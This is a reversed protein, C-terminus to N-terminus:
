PTPRFPNLQISQATISGDANATGFAAVTTGATLDAASAPAAKNITTTKSLLVIKTSGDTLKVTMSTADASVIDGTVPRNQNNGFRATGRTGTGNVNAAFQRNASSSLQSQQYKMGGFFGAGAAIVILILLVININKM